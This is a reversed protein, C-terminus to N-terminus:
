RSKTLNFFHVWRCIPFHLPPLPPPPINNLSEDTWTWFLDVVVLFAFVRRHGPAPHKKQTDKGCNRIWHFHTVWEKTNCSYPKIQPPPAWGFEASGGSGAGIGAAYERTPPIWEYKKIHCKVAKWRWKERTPGVNELQFDIMEWMREVLKFWGKFHSRLQILVVRTKFCKWWKLGSEVSQVGSELENYQLGSSEDAWGLLYFRYVIMWLFSDITLNIANWQNGLCKLHIEVHVPAPTFCQPTHHFGRGTGCRHLDLSHVPRLYGPNSRLEVGYDFLHNGTTIPHVSHHVLFDITRECKREPKGGHGPIVEDSRFPGNSGSRLRGHRLSVLQLLRVAIIWEFNLNFSTVLCHFHFVFNCIDSM